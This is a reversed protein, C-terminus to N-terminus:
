CPKRWDATRSLASFTMMPLRGDPCIAGPPCAPALDIGEEAHSGAHDHVAEVIGLALRGIIEDGIKLKLGDAIKKEM